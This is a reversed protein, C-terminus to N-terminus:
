PLVKASNEPQWNLKAAKFFIRPWSCRGSTTGCTATTPTTPCCLRLELKKEANETLFYDGQKPEYVIEFSGREADSQIGETLVKVSNFLDERLESRTVKSACCRSSSTMMRITSSPRPRSGWFNRAFATSFPMRAGLALISSRSARESM